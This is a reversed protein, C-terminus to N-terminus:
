DFVIVSRAVEGAALVDYATNIEDLRYSRSIVEDIKVKGNMYLDALERLDVVVAGLRVVLRRDGSRHAAALVRQGQLQAILVGALLLAAM